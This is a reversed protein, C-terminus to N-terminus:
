KSDITTSETCKNANDINERRELHKKSHEKPTLWELNAATNNLKNFDKHHLQCNISKPQELFAAAVLRHVFVNAREGAIKIDVRGYGQNNITPKLLIAEYGAYSKVRGLSSVFYKGETGSIEKWDETDLSEINDKSYNKGYVLLYLTKLSVIKYTKDELKLRFNNRSDAEIFTDTSSNYVEGEETLYYCSDFANEIQKM